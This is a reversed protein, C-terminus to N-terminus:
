DSYITNLFQLVKSELQPDDYPIILIPINPSNCRTSEIFKYYEERLSQLYGAEVNKESERGRTKMRELSGEVSVEIFVLGDLSQKKGFLQLMKKEFYKLVFEETFDTLYGMKRMNRTFITVSEFSRDSLINIAGGEIQKKYMQYLVDIFHLQCIGGSKIPEDYLAALPNFSGFKQFGDLPENVILVGSELRRRLNNILTTKGAGPLGEIAVNKMRQKSQQARTKTFTNKVGAFLICYCRTVSYLAPQLSKYNHPKKESPPKLALYIICIAANKIPGYFQPYTPNRPYSYWKALTRSFTSDEKRKTNAWKIHQYSGERSKHPPLELTHPVSPRRMVGELHQGCPM